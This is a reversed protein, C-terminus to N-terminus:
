KLVRANFRNVAISLEMDSFIGNLTNSKPLISINIGKSVSVFAFLTEYSLFVLTTKKM